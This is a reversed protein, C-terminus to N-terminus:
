QEQLSNPPKESCGRVTHTWTQHSQTLSHGRSMDDDSENNDDDDDDDDDDDEDGTMTMSM